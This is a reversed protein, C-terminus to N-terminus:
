LVKIGIYQARINRRHTKFSAKHLVYRIDQKTSLVQCVKYDNTDLIDYVYITKM